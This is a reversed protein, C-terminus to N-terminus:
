TTTVRQRWEGAAYHLRPGLAATVQGRRRDDVVLVQDVQMAVAVARWHAPGAVLLATSAADALAASRHVVTVSVLGSVPRATRPDLVHAQREGDLMRFREYTGSTIVAEQGQTALSAILGDGGPDRIGIQWPRDLARGIAALNGGLDVVADRVGRAQLGALARDIAVGKAYAGFDLQLAPNRSRVRLGRVELQALSPAAQRWQALTAASPRPGPRLVDDHFGWAGVAGGIAPNFLGGSAQELRAASRIMAALAPAVEAERGARLEANLTHLAGPKWANWQRHIVALEDLAASLAAATGSAGGPWATLEVPAGFLFHRARAPAIQAATALATSPLVLAGALAAALRRRVPQTLGDAAQRPVPAIPM